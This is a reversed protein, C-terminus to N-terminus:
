GGIAVDEPPFGAEEWLAKLEEMRAGSPVTFEEARAGIRGAKDKGTNHYPLLNIKVPRTNERVFRIIAKMEGDTGNVEPIVPVRINVRAGAATLRKLNELIRENSVGTYERHLEPTIAKIDYLFTDIYPLVREFREWSVEGCTDMDVSIGEAALRKLLREMYDMDQAMAEGGSLTVGGGSDEYFQRDQKLVRALEEVEMEEGVISRANYICFDTCSGCATCRARDTVARALPKREGEQGPQGGGNEEELGRGPKCNEEREAKIEIGKGPCVAACRGCGACREAFFMLERKWSQSEANHCWRCSLPCGKFFVTTRIGEGDHVSFKQINIILPHNMRGSGTM